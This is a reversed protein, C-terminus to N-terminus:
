VKSTISKTLGHDVKMTTEVAVPNETNTLHRRLQLVQHVGGVTNFLLCKLDERKQPKTASTLQMVDLETHDMWFAM